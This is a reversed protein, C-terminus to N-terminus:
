TLSFTGTTAMFAKIKEWMPLPLQQPLMREIVAFQKSECEQRAIKERLQQMKGSLQQVNENMERMNGALEQAKTQCEHLRESLTTLEYFIEAQQKM